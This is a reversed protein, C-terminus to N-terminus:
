PRSRTQQEMHEIARRTVHFFGGFNVGTVLDHHEDTYQSAGTIVVVRPTADSM